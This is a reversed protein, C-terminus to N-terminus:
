SEGERCWLRLVRRITHDGDPAMDVLAVRDLV